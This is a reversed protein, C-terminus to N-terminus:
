DPFNSKEQLKIYDWLKQKHCMVEPGYYYQKINKTHVLEEVDWWPLTKIDSLFEFYQVKFERKIKYVKMDESYGWSLIDGLSKDPHRTFFQLPRKYKREEPMVKFWRKREELLDEKSVTEPFGESAINEVVKRRVEEENHSCFLENFTPFDDDLRSYHFPTDEDSEPGEEIIVDNFNDLENVFKFSYEMDPTPPIEEEIDFKFKDDDMDLEELMSERTWNEVLEAEEEAQNLYIVKPLNLFVQQIDPHKTSSSSEEHHQDDDHQDNKDDKDDKNDIDDKEDKDDDDDDEDEDEDGFMEDLEKDDNVVKFNNM